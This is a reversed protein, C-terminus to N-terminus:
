SPPFYVTGRKHGQKRLVGEQVLRALNDKITNRNAGTTRLVDGATVRGHRHAIALIAEQLASRSALTQSAVWSAEAGRGVGILLEVVEDLWIGLQEEPNSPETEPGGVVQPKGLWDPEIPGFLVQIYGKQLLMLRLAISYLHSNTGGQLVANKISGYFASIELLPVGGSQRGILAAQLQLALLDGAGSVEMTDKSIQLLRCIQAVGADTWPFAEFWGHIFQVTRGYHWAQIITPSCNEPPKEALLIEPLKLGTRLEPPVAGLAAALVADRRVSDLRVSPGHLRAEWRGRDREVASLSEWRDLNLYFDTTQTVM